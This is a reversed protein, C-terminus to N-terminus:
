LRLDAPDYYERWTKILSGDLECISMGRYAIQKGTARVKITITWEALVKTGHV